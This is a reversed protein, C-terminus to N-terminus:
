DRARLAVGALLMEALANIQEGDSLKSAALSASQHSFRFCLMDVSSVPCWYESYGQDEVQLFDTNGIKTPKIDIDVMAEANAIMDADDLLELWGGEILRFNNIGRHSRANDYIAKLWARPGTPTKFNYQTPKLSRISFTQLTFEVSDIASKQWRLGSLPLQTQYINTYHFDYYDSVAYHKKSHTNVFPRLDVGIVPQRQWYTFAPM